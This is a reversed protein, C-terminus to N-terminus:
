ELAQGDLSTSDLRCGTAQVPTHADVPGPADDPRQDATGHSDSMPDLFDTVASAVAQQTSASAPPLHAQPGKKAPSWAQHPAPSQFPAREENSQARTGNASHPSAKFM